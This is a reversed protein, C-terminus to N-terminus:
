HTILSNFKSWNNNFYNAQFTMMIGHDNTANEGQNM